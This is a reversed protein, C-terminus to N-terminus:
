AAITLLDNVTLLSRDPPRPAVLVRTGGKAKRPPRRYQIEADCRVGQKPMWSLCSCQRLEHMETNPEEWLEQTPCELRGGIGIGPTTEFDTTCSARSLPPDGIFFFTRILSWILSRSYRSRRLLKSFFSKMVWSSGSLDSLVVVFFRLASFFRAHFPPRPLGAARGIFTLGGRSTVLPLMPVCLLSPMAQLCECFLVFTEEAGYASM